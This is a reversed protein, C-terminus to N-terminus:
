RRYDVQFGVTVPRARAGTVPDSDPSVAVPLEPTSFSEFQRLLRIRSLLVYLCLSVKRYEVRVGPESESLRGAQCDAFRTRHHATGRHDGPDVATVADAYLGSRIVSYGIMAGGRPGQGPDGPPSCSLPESRTRCGPSPGRAAPGYAPRPAAPGSGPLKSLSIRHSLGALRESAPQTIAIEM